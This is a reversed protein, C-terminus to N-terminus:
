STAGTATMLRNLIFNAIGWASLVIVLGIVGAGMLKKAEGAKDENGGATMWKFGALLILVVAIIGLFLMAVNILRAVTTRPDENGLGNEDFGLQVENLGVDLNQAFSVMPLALLSLMALALLNKVIKKNM